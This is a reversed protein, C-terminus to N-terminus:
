YNNNRQELRCQKRYRRGIVIIYGTQSTNSLVLSNIIQSTQCKQDSIFADISKLLTFNRDDQPM